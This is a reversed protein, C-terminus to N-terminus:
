RFQRQSYTLMLAKWGRHGRGRGPTNDPARMTVAQAEPTALAKSSDTDSTGSTNSGPANFPPRRWQMWLQKLWLCQWQQSHSPFAPTAPADAVDPTTRNAHAKTAPPLSDCAGSSSSSPDRHSRTSSWSAPTKHMAEEAAVSSEPCSAWLDTDYAGGRSNGWNWGRQTNQYMWRWTYM